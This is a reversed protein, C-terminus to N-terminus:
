TGRSLKLSANSRAIGSVLMSGVAAMTKPTTLPTVATLAGQGSTQAGHHNIRYTTASVGASCLDGDAKRGSIELEGLLDPLHELLERVNIIAVCKTLSCALCIDM